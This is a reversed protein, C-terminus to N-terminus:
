QGISVSFRAKNVSGREVEHLEIDVRENHYDALGKLLGLVFYELGARPSEYIIDFEKGSNAIEEVRFHPQRLNSFETAIRNHMLDLQEVCSKFDHGVMALLYTFRKAAVDLVWYRGFDLLVEHAEQGLRESLGGVMRYTIEDPFAEMTAFLVHSCGCDEMAKDCEARGLKMIMFDVLASNILGYLM